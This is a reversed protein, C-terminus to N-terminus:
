GGGDQKERCDACVGDEFEGHDACFIKGCAECEGCGEDYAGDEDEREYGGADKWTYREGNYVPERCVECRRTTRM